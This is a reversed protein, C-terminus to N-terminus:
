LEKLKHALDLRLRDYQSGLNNKIDKESPKLLEPHEYINGVIETNDANVYLFNNYSGDRFVAWYAQGNWSVYGLYPIDKQRIIDGDFIEQQNKDYLGTSDLRIYRNMLYYDCHDVDVINGNGAIFLNREVPTDIMKKDVKDYVRFGRM